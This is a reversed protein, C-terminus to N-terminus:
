KKAAAAAAAAASIAARTSKVGAVVASKANLLELNEYSLDGVKIVQGLGLPTIDVDLVDPLNAPLAKVNLKRMEIVLKGGVKVGESNGTIRLPVGITVPKDDFIQLFDVHLITDKVPHFQIDKLVAKMTTGDITLNVIYVNPTYVLDRFAVEPVSFTIEKEGGYVICPILGERRLQKAVKKGGVERKSGTIDFTQM